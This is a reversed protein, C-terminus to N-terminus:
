KRVDQEIFEFSSSKVSNKLNSANGSSLNDICYVKLQMNLLAECLNAGIFGAGGMVLVKKVAKSYYM